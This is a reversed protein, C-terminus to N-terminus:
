DSRVRAVYAACCIGSAVAANLSEAGCRHPGRPISLWDNLAGQQSERIGHSESGIVLLTDRQWTCSLANNGGEIRTGVISLQPHAARLALLSETRTPLRLFAGMSAQIAKPNYLDVCDDSLFLTSHGFWDAVRLIAGLNGPDRIGDLYLNLGTVLSAQESSLPTSNTPTAAPMDLVALIAPPTDLSSIRQFTETDCVFVAGRIQDHVESSQRAFYEPTCVVYRFEQPSAALIEAVITEGEALFQRQAHRYKRGRLARLHKAQNRTLPPPTM